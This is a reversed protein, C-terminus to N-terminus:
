HMIFTITKTNDATNTEGPATDVKVVLTTAQGAVPHLGGLQVTRRQGPTVNVFDRVMESPGSQAPSITATVTLNKEPQNGDDAVVIQMNLLKTSPLVQTTGESNVPQPDTTVLLVAVDHVPALSASSRLTTLFGTLLGPTWQSADTVWQSPPLPVGLSPLAQVFLQYTRDAAQLDLGVDALTQIPPDAPQGSMASAMAAQLSQAAMDRISLVAILLDAATRVTSPADVRRVSLAAQHAGSATQKLRRDIEEGGLQVAQTRVANIDQGQQNSQEVIPLVQDLYSQGALQRAPGPSRAHMAANLALVVLTAM